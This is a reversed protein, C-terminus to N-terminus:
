WTFVLAYVLSDAWGPTVGWLPLAPDLHPPPWPNLRHPLWTGNRIGAGGEM